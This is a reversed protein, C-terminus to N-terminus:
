WRDDGVTFQGNRGGFGDDVTTAARPPTVPRGDVVYVFQYSGPSLDVRTEWWGSGVADLPTAGTTWGNFDGAVSM